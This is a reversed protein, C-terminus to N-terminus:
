EPSSPDGSRAVADPAARRWVGLNKARAERMLAGLAPPGGPAARAWGTRVMMRALDQDGVRCATAIQRRFPGSALRCEVTRWRILLELYSRAREACPDVIGDLGVCVEGRGPAQIGALRVVRGEAALTDGTVARPATLSTFQWVPEAAPAAPEPRGATEEGAAGHSTTPPLGPAGDLGLSWGQERGSFGRLPGQHDLAMAGEPNPLSFAGDVPEGGVFPDPRTFAALPARWRPQRLFTASGPASGAEFLLPDALPTRLAAGDLATPMDLLSRGAVRPGGPGDAVRREVAAAVRAAAAAAEREAGAQRVLVLVVTGAAVVVLSAAATWVISVRGAAAM